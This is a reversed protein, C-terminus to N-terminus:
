CSTTGTPSEFLGIQKNQLAEYVNIMLQQQIEYPPYPFAALMEEHQTATAMCDQNLEPFQLESMLTAINSKCTRSLYILATFYLVSNRRGM